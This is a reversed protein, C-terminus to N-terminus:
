LQKVVPGFVDRFVRMYKALWEFQTPWNSQHTFDAPLSVYVKASKAAPDSHWVLPLDIKAKLAAEIDKLQAFQKKADESTLALEVRIEPENKNSVCNWTSIIGHIHFYARGITSTLWHQYGPKQLKLDTHEEAWTKFETWFQYQLQKMESRQGAKASQTKIERSWDNPKSIINFKPAPESQGIRWLEIELGFFSLDEVTNENLWDLAARHEETFQKAVWIVTKATLGAAYTLIQGLHRHDTKEVQNEILVWSDDAINKCLIDASYPGVAAEQKEFELELGVTEGLLALNDERALWPTFDRAEDEWIERLEVTQLRGLVQAPKTGLM